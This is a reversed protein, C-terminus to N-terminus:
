KIMIIINPSYLLNHLEENRFTRWGGIIEDRKPGFIKLLMYISTEPFRRTGDEPFFEV